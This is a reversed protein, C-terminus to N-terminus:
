GAGRCARRCRVRGCVRHARLRTSQGCADPADALQSYNFIELTPGDAGYGPLRMHMGRLAAGPVGTGAEVEHGAFDREPPVDVCGFVSRYFAALARWDRAILNTHIYRAGRIM